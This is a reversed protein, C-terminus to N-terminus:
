RGLQKRITLSKELAKEYTKFYGFFKRKNDVKFMVQFKKDRKHFSIGTADSKYNHSEKGKKNIRGKHKESLKQKTEETHPKRKKGKRALSMKEKTEASAPSKSIGKHANSIKAKTEDSHKRGTFGTSGKAETSINYSSEKDICNLYLQEVDYLCTNDDVLELVLLEFNDIGYKNFAYQLKSNCHNNNKLRRRHEIFRDYISCSSGIYYKNNITNVIAYIGSILLESRKITTFNYKNM